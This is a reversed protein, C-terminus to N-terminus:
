SGAKITKGDPMERPVSFYFATGRGEGESVVWIRGGHLELIRRVLTLGIGTGESEANLKNFLGFVKEHYQQAIGAGNDRVYFVSYGREDIGDAGVEVLPHEVGSSFKVANDILNQLVELMRVKDVFVHPMRAQIHVDAKGAHIQGALLGVAQEALENFSVREFPNTMRGIRSLELLDSLLAQMKEAADEIRHLDKRLAALNGKEAAQEVYGLYGRITILPSKLDHSVTYTFRELEANKTELESVVNQITEAMQNMTGGLSGFEDERQLNARATLDGAALRNATHTLESIPRTISRAALIAAFVMLTAISIILLISTRTQNEVEKLLVEEPQVYIVLWNRATMKATAAVERGPQEAFLDLMYFGKEPNESLAKLLSTKNNAFTEPRAAPLRKESVAQKLTGEDLPALTKQIEDPEASNVLQIQYSDLIIVNTEEGAEQTSQLALQQIITANYEARLMGIIQNEANRIPAAFRLVRYGDSRITIESIQSHGSQLVEQFYVEDRENKGENSFNTDLLVSGDTDLLAYSLLYVPSKRILNNLMRRAAAEEPSDKRLGAPLILYDVMDSIQAEARLSDITSLLFRDLKGATQAALSRLRSEAAATLSRRTQQIDIISILIVPLLTLALLLSLTKTKLSTKFPTFIGSGAREAKHKM